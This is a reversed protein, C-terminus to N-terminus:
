FYILNICIVFKALGCDLDGLRLEREIVAM